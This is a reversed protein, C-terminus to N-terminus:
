GLLVLCYKDTRDYMPLLPIVFALWFCLWGLSVLMCPSLDWTACNLGCQLMRVTICKDINILTLIKLLHMVECEWSIHFSWTSRRNFSLEGSILITECMMGNLSFSAAYLLIWVQTTDTQEQQIVKQLGEKSMQRQFM